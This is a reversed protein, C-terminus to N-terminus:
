AARKVGLYGLRMMTHRFVAKVAALDDRTAVPNTGGFFLEDPSHHSKEKFGSNIEQAKVIKINAMDVAKALRTHDVNVEIHELYQQFWYKTDEVMDEYRIVLPDHHSREVYSATHEDWSSVFDSMRTGKSKLRFKNNKMFKISEKIGKGMHRAFSPLVDRPDRVILTITKTLAYPILEIGNAIVNANHSKVVLPMDSVKGLNYSVVLRLLATSRILHQIDLPYDVPDVGDGLDFRTSLNDTTASLLENIDLAGLFYADLLCRIWTSGSKPYSALWNIQRYDTM